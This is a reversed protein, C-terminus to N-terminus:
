EVERVKVQNDYVETVIVTKGPEIIGSEALADLRQGEIKVTGVPRLLTVAVGRAGILQRLQALRERRAHESSIAADDDQEVTGPEDGGLIMKKALPSHLWVRFGFVILIPGLLVYLLASVVGWTSDYMFFAVVSGIAAVLAMAGILGGSPVFLELCLLSLSAGLLILGWVLMTGDNTAAQQALMAIM